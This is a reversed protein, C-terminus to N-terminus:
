YTNGTRCFGGKLWVQMNEWYCVAPTLLASRWCKNQVETLHLCIDAELRPLLEEWFTALICKSNVSADTLLQCLCHNSIGHTVLKRICLFDHHATVSSPSIAWPNLTVALGPETELMWMTTWLWRDSWKWPSGVYEESKRPCQICTTCKCVNLCFM